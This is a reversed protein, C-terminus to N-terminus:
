NFNSFSKGTSPPARIESTRILFTRTYVYTCQVLLNTQPLCELAVVWLKHLFRGFQLVRVRTHCIVGRSSIIVSNTYTNAYEYENDILRALCLM